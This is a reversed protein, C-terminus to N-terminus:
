EENWRVVIVVDGDDFSATDVVVDRMKEEKELLLPLLEDDFEIGFYKLRSVDGMSVM